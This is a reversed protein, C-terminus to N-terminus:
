RCVLTENFHACRVDLEMASSVMSPDETIGATPWLPRCMRKQLIIKTPMATKMTIRSRTIGAMTATDTDMDM